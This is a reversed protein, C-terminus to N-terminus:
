ALLRVFQEFVPPSFHGLMEEKMITLANYPSINRKYSRVATLADYVDAICCIKAYIHIDEDKLKRPYGTGDSREHHQMVIVKMEETLQDTESLIKYGQYPHSRIIKLEEEDLKGPKNIIAPDIRVKGLDHLFFGAGLEHLDHGTSKNFLVKALMVSLVGANVSHTYTYFDYSTISLLYSATEDDSIILDVIDAIAERAVTINEAVPNSLLSGMLKVASTYVARAKKAPPMAHNHIAERLEDPVLKEPEWHEPPPLDRDWHSTSEVDQVHRDRSPDISFEAIGTDKLKRIEDETQITFTSKLFPHRLCEEDPLVIYMGVRLDAPAIKKLM